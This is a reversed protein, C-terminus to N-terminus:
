VALLKKTKFYDSNLNTNENNDFVKELRSLLIENQEINEDFAQSTKARFKFMMEPTVVVQRLNDILNRFSILENDTLETNILADEIVAAESSIKISYDLLEGDSLTNYDVYLDTLLLGLNNKKAYSRISSSIRNCLKIVLSRAPLVETVIENSSRAAYILEQQMSDLRANFINVDRLVDKDKFIEDAHVDFHHSVKLFYILKKEQIQNM